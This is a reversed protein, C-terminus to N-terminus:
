PEVSEANLLAGQAIAIVSKALAPTEPTAAAGLQAVFRAVVHVASTRVFVRIGDSTSESKMGKLLNRKVRAAEPQRVEFVCDIPASDERFGALTESEFANVDDIDAARYPESPDAKATTIGAVRFWKLKGTSHCTAIFRPRDSVDVRHVSVHRHSQDRRSATFYHIKLTLKKTAADELLDLWSDEDATPVASRVAGEFPPASTTLPLRAAIIKSLRERAATRPARALVRLLDPLESNHFALIGPHWDKPMRWIVNPHDDESTLRWGDSQMKVLHKRVAESSVGALRGLEAQTWRSREVFAGIITLFTEHAGRQGM